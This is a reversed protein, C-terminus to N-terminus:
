EPYSAIREVTFVLPHQSVDRAGGPLEFVDLMLQVPYDIRQAVTKVWRGDIFFRLREASWDVAYDHMTTLDGTVRVSEFDTQLRPDHHAKVGVGVWGGSDDIDAGFIEAVCIEGSEGPHEEFGIPWLAVMTAPHRIAAIRATLVGHRFLWGRRTPQEERVRLGERFRHQGILSGVPGSFQGTQLHSVRVGPDLEPAWPLTDADIRLQLGRDLDYRAATDARSSWHPLYHPVWREADLDSGAFQEDVAPTREGLDLPSMDLEWVREHLVVGRFPEDQEGRAVFGAARCLANSPANEVVPFAYLRDRHPLEDAIIRLLLRLADWAVGRGQFEPIVNWGTEYAPPGGREIPWVGIGGAPRGHVEIRFMWAEGRENLRLYRLHRERVQEPTEPGGLYRTM